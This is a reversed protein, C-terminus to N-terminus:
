CDQCLRVACGLGCPVPPWLLVRQPTRGRRHPGGGEHVGARPWLASAAPARWPGARCRRRALALLRASQEAGTGRPWVVM